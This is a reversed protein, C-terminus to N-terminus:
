KSCGSLLPLSVVNANEFFTRTIPQGNGSLEYLGDLEAITPSSLGWKIIAEVDSFKLFEANKWTGKQLGPHWYQLVEGNSQILWMQRKMNEQTVIEFVSAAKSNAPLLNIVDDAETITEDGSIVQRLQGSATATLTLPDCSAPPYVTGTSLKALKKKDNDAPAFSSVMSVGSGPELEVILDITQIGVLDRGLSGKQVLKAKNGELIGYLPLVTERLRITESLAQSLEATLGLTALDPSLTDFGASAGFNNSQNFTLDGLDVQVYPSSLQSWSSFKAGTQGNLEFTTTLKSLRDAERVNTSIDTTVAIRRSYRLLNPINSPTSRGIESSLTAVINATSASKERSIAELAEAQAREPLDAILRRRSSTANPVQFVSIDLEVTTVAQAAPSEVSAYRKTFTPTTACTSLLLTSAFVFGLFETTM